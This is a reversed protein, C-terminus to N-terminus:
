KNRFNGSPIAVNTIQTVSKDSEKESINAGKKTGKQCKFKKWTRISLKENDSMTITTPIKKVGSDRIRRFRTASRQAFIVEAINRVPDFLLLM